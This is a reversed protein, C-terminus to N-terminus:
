VNKVREGNKFWIIDNTDVYELVEKVSMYIALRGGPKNQKLTKYENVKKDFLPHLKKIHEKSIWYSAIPIADGNKHFLSHGFGEFDYLKKIDDTKSMDFMASQWNNISPVKEFQSSKLEINKYGEDEAKADEGKRGPTKEISSLIQRLEVVQMLERYGYNDLPNIGTSKRFDALKKLGDVLNAVDESTM